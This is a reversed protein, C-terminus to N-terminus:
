PAKPGPPLKERLFNTMLGYLHRTTNPRESISHSRSPYAFMTFQKHHAILENILQEAGQYHCNDDGTSRFLM